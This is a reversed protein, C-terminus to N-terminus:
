PLCPQLSLSPHTPATGSPMDPAPIELLYVSTPPDPDPRAWLTREPALPRWCQGELPHLALRPQPSVGPHVWLVPLPSPRPGAPCAPLDADVWASPPSQSPLALPGALLVPMPSLCSLALDGSAVRDQDGQQTWSPRPCGCSMSPMFTGVQLAGAPTLCPKPHCTWVHTQLSKPRAGERVRGSSLDRQDQQWSGPPSPGM